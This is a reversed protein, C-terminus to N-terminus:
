EIRLARRRMERGCVHLIDWDELLQDLNKRIVQNVAQSGMSGGIILLVEKEGSFGARELGRKGVGRCFSREFPLM